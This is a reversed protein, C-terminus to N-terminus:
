ALEGLQFKGPQGSDREVRMVPLHRNREGGGRTGRECVFEPFSQTLAALGQSGLGLLEQKGQQFVLLQTVTRSRVGAGRQGLLKGVGTFDEGSSAVWRSAGAHGM